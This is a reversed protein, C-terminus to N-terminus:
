GNTNDSSSLELIMRLLEESIHTRMGIEANPHLGFAVPTESSFSEDIHEVVKEYSSTTSPAKFIDVDGSEKDIHPYLIMEDLIEERMFFELYTNALIRDFANVIHGGYMIGM